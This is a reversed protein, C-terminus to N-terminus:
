PINIWQLLYQSPCGSPTGALVQELTNVYWRFEHLQEQYKYIINLIGALIWSIAIIEGTCVSIVVPFLFEIIWSM